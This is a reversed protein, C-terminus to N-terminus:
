ATIGKSGTFDATTVQPNNALFTAKSGTLTAPIYTMICSTCTSPLILENINGEIQVSYLALTTLNPFLNPLNELNLSINKEVVTRLELIRVEKFNSLDEVQSAEFGQTSYITLSTINPAAVWDNVDKLSGSTARIGVTTLKYCAKLDKLDVYLGSWGSITTLNYKPSISVVSPNTMNNFSAYGIVTKEITGDEFAGTICRLSTYYSPSTIAIAGAAKVRLEGLKLLSDDNVVSKLKTVLCEAM